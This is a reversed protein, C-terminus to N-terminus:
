MEETHMAFSLINTNLYWSPFQVSPFFFMYCRYDTNYPQPSQIFLHRFLPIHHIPFQSCNPHGCANSFLTKKPPKKQQIICLLSCITQFRMHFPSFRQCSTFLSLYHKLCQLKVIPQFFLTQCPDQSNITYYFYLRCAKLPLSQRLIPNPGKSFFLWFSNIPINLIPTSPSHCAWNQWLRLQM